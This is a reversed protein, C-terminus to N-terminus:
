AEGRAKQEKLAKARDIIGMIPDGGYKRALAGLILDAGWELPRDHATHDVTEVAVRREATM